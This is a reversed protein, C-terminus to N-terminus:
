LREEQGCTSPEDSVSASFIWLHGVQLAGKLLTETGEILIAVDPGCGTIRQVEVAVNKSNRYNLYFDVGIKQKYLLESNEGSSIALVRCGRAKAYQCTLSGLGGPPGVIAQAPDAGDM